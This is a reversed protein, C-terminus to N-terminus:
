VPVHAGHGADASGGTGDAGGNANSPVIPKKLPRGPMVFPIPAVPTTPLSETPEEVPEEEIVPETVPEEVEMPEEPINEETCDVYVNVIPESM